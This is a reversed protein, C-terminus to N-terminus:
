LPLGLQTSLHEQLVVPRVATLYQRKVQYEGPLPVAAAAKRTFEANFKAVSDGCKLEELTAM